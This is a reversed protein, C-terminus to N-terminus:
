KKLLIYGIDTEQGENVVVFEKRENKYPPIAEVQLSYTGPQLESILFMGQYIMGITTDKKSIAWVRAAGNPPSIMGKISGTRLPESFSSAITIMFLAALAVAVIKKM